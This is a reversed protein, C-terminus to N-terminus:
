FKGSLHQSAPGRSRLRTPHLNSRRPRSRFEASRITVLNQSSRRSQVREQLAGAQAPPHVGHQQQQQPQHPRAYEAALGDCFSLCLLSVQFKYSMLHCPGTVCNERHHSPQGKLIKRIINQSVSLRGASIISAPPSLRTIIAMAWTTTAM